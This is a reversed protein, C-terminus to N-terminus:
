ARYLAFGEAEFDTDFALAVNVQHRRMVLFSACDMLSLGRRKREALLEVAQEHDQSNMWHVEFGKSDDLFGLASEIGLRRQLLATSEVLVYSHTLIEEGEDLLRRFAAIAVAHNLDTRDSLAFIASTDLFIM